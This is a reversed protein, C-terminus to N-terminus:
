FGGATLEPIVDNGTRVELKRVLHFAANFGDMEEPAAAGSRQATTLSYVM